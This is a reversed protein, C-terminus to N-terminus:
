LAHTYKWSATWDTGSRIFRSQVFLLYVAAHDNNGGIRGGSVRLAEDRASSIVNL